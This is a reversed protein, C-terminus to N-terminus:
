SKPKKVMVLPETPKPLRQFVEPPVGFIAAMVDDPMVGISKAIGIDDETEALSTNFLILFHLENEGTNEFYHFFGQPVFVVDGAEVEFSDSNGRPDLVTMRANGAVCYDFEWAAPHWHPERVGGPLLRVSYLSADQGALIPLENQSAGRLDGGSYKHAAAKELKYLYPHKM